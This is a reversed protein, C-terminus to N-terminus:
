RVERALMAGGPCMGGVRVCVCVCVPVTVVLARSFLPSVDGDGLDDRTRWRSNMSDLPSHTFLEQKM